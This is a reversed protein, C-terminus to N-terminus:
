SGPRLLAALAPLDLEAGGPWLRLRRTPNGARAGPAKGVKAQANSLRRRLEAPDSIKVPYGGLELRRAAIPLHATERTDIAADSLTLGAQALRELIFELGAAYETNRADASGRTGGRAELVITPRGDVDELRFTADITSGDARVPRHPGFSGLRPETLKWAALAWGTDIWRTSGKPTGDLYRARNVRAEDLVGGHAQVDDSAVAVWALDTLSISREAFGEDGGDIRLGGRQSPGLVRARRGGQVLMANPMALLVDVVRQARALSGDPLARSVTRGDGWRQWTRYDVDPIRWGDDQWRGVGLYQFGGDTQALVFATEAPRRTISVRVRDPAVLQGPRDIFVFLHGGSRGTAPRDIGFTAELDTITTGVPPAIDEPRVSGELRAIALMDETAEYSPGQPNDSILRWHGDRQVIRKLQWSGGEPLQILAVRNTLASAPLNRCYRLIAWDGDRLPHSGGDMSTGSVRVAFREPAEGEVPLLVLESDPPEAEGLAPGAAARLDPYAVVARRTFPILNSQVPECWLGDPSAVFRVDFATGPQGAAPGFWRRLLDPLQNRDSGVPRAVNCFGTVFRFLWVSGDPLRVPLEQGSVRETASQPLRIIPDRKNWIVRCVFSDDSIPVRYRALRYDVLERVLGPLAPDPPHALRFRDDEDVVFWTRKKKKANAWAAIPNDRWYAVWRRVAAEDPNDPLRDHELVDALLEPSRRLRSWAGLALDRIPLGSFLAGADLLVDLTVMKFSKTMETTELDDLFGSDLVRLQEPTLDGEAAVFAFWSRHRARLTAPAYGLRQLEGATPRHERTDRLERYAQEVREAGGVRYLSELLRKAELELEVTCGHPLETRGTALLTALAAARDGLSLLTRLRELFIKHNGVFDLVTVAQKGPAARLGRGLQQLFVVSSETPRLMVVRDLAPVDVGENFIDIACIADLEGRQLGTLALDRDDSGPAAYVKAVRVGRTVLWAAAYDAHAVSCCFVLTRTGPHAQWAAWLTQMRRESQAAAALQEADFHHNRWPINKYDIEDRVGFYRFPVLRGIQVGRALDARYAVHDDFLGLIDAADARDPTATLGLLFTPDLRALIKRYSEAAAHHVEDIVVYDFREAALQDIWPARSAKAVSAFVLDAGIDAQDELCWGVLATVNRSRLQARYTAAAQRLLERRHALFLLRPVRGLEDWLQVFDFTALWTKGLGTALVVLARRRSQERTTRLCALAEKQVDHPTALPMPPDVEVEGPRLAAPRARARAAYAAIWAADLPKALSWLAAFADRIRGWARADADREVRLNWEIGTDLASRSLNSSGVFAVGFDPGELHWAKPHFSRTRGPLGAVEIVKAELTGREGRTAQWDLLLELAEVQTIELYDGTIIRIVAGERLATELPHQIRELGSAQVFASVIDVKEARALLPLVHAAFPDDEGGAALSPTHRLYNGRSPIVHRIGGRPDDMDGVYRPIVHVHLHMVTQGAAAGANFGVNYGAPTDSADLMHKIADVARWIAEREAASADFWTAVHRRPIVLTHGRSVPHLDRVAIVLEDSWVIQSDPIACFPCPLM